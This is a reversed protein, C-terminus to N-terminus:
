FFGKKKLGRPSMPLMARRGLSRPVSSTPRQAGEKSDPLASMSMPTTTSSPADEREESAKSGMGNRMTKYMGSVSFRDRFSVPADDEGDDASAPAFGEDSAAAPSIMNSIPSIMQSIDMADYIMSSLPRIAEEEKPERGAGEGSASAPVPTEDAPSVAISTAKVFVTKKRRAISNQRVRSLNGVPIGSSPRGGGPRNGGPRNGGARQSLVRSDVGRRNLAVRTLSPAADTALAEEPATQSSLPVTSEEFYNIQFWAHQRVAELSARKKPDSELLSALVSKAGSSFSAPYKMDGALIAKFVADDDEGDFPVHGSLLVYLVMGCDWADLKAGDYGEKAGGNVIEPAMYRPTGCMTTLLQETGADQEDTESMWAHGFDTLKVNGKNDLLLNEPKLDRHFVGRRHCYVVADILQQFYRRSTDEDIKKQALIESYLEGGSVMEMVLYLRSNTVLATHISVINPHRLRQMIKIEKKIDTRAGGKAMLARDFVKVAYEKGTEEHVASRVETFAGGGIREKIVYKGVKVSPAMGPGDTQLAHVAQCTSDWSSSSLLTHPLIDERTIALGKRQQRTHIKQLFALYWFPYEFSQFVPIMRLLPVVSINACM